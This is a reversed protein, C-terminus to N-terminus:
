ERQSTLCLAYVLAALAAFWLFAGPHFQARAICFLVGFAVAAPAALQLKM